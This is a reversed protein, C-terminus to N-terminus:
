FFERASLRNLSVKMFVKQVFVLHNLLDAQANLNGGQRFVVGEPSWQSDNRVDVAQM